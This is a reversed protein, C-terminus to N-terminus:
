KMIGEIFVSADPMRWTLHGALYGLLFPISPYKHSLRIIYASISASKGSKAIIWIDFVAIIFILSIM